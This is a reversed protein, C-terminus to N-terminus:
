ASIVRFWRAAPQSSVCFYIANSGAAHSVGTASAINNILDTGNGFVQMANASTNTLYFDRGAIGAPLKVSDAATAVVTVNTAVGAMQTANAQGGTAFATLSVSTTRPFTGDTQTAIQSESTNAQTIVQNLPTTTNANLDEGSRLRFGSAFVNTASVTM